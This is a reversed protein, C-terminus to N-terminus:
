RAFMVLPLKAVREVGVADCWALTEETSEDISARPNDAAIALYAVVEALGQELPHSAVVESLSVHARTELLRVIREQLKARDVYVQEFLADPSVDSAGDVLTKPTFRVKIPPTFLPRDLPLTIEPAIDDLEMLSDPPVDRVTRASTEIRRLLGMIRRNELFAKDDVLRKLQESLRAVTRQASGGATLWDRHIRRLRPDPALQKVAELSFTKDLLASLEDQRDESMLFDWFASFSRGQDSDTIVDREGFIEDLLAGRGKDWAAIRARVERDLDKFNQEVQRFDTLLGTATAEIQLFRDRVRTPDLLDIQGAEVRAIEADLADRRRRLDSLRKEADMETGAVIEELLRFVTMLRSETGVFPKTRLSALWELAREANSTLDFHPEDGDEPYYKRLWGHAETTWEDLYENATRPFADAGKRERLHFLHDDLKTALDTQSITRTNPAIFASHLFSAALAAHPSALLRWGGHSQRLRELLVFDV